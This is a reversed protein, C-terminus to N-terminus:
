TFGSQCSNIAYQMVKTKDGVGGVVERVTRFNRWLFCGPELVKSTQNSLQVRCRLIDGGNEGKKGRRHGVAIRKGWIEFWWWSVLQTLFELFQVRVDQADTMNGFM